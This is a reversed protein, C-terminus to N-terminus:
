HRHLRVELLGDAKTVPMTPDYSTQKLEHFDFAKVWSSALLGIVMCVNGSDNIFLSGTSLSDLNVKKPRDNIKIEM